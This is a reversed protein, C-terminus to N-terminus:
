QGTGILRMNHYDLNGDMILPPNDTGVAGNITTMVSWNTSSLVESAGGSRNHSLWDDVGNYVKGPRYESPMPNYFTAGIYIVDWSSIGITENYIQISNGKMTDGPALSITQEPLTFPLTNGADTFMTHATAVRNDVYTRRTLPDDFPGFASIIIYRGPTNTDYYTRQSDRPNRIDDRVASNITTNIKITLVNNGDFSANWSQTITYLARSSLADQFAGKWKTNSDRYYYQRTGINMPGATATQWSTGSQTLTGYSLKNDSGSSKDFHADARWQYEQAM